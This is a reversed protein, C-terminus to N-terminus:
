ALCYLNVGHIDDRSEPRNPNAKGFDFSDKVFNVQPTAETRVNQTGRSSTIGLLKEISM